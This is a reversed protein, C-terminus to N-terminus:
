PSIGLSSDHPQTSPKFPLHAWGKQFLSAEINEALSSFWQYQLTLYPGKGFVTVLSLQSTQGNSAKGHLQHSGLSVAEMEKAIDVAQTLMLDQQSLLKQQTAGSKLGCVLCDRM